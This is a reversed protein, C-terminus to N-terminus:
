PRYWRWKERRYPAACRYRPSVRFYSRLWARPLAPPAPEHSAPSPRTTLRGPHQRVRRTLAAPFRRGSQGMLGSIVSSIKLLADELIKEIRNQHRVRDHTLSARLRTLARLDRIAGPPVFSRRLMGRENLKCLWM